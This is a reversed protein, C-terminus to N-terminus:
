VVALFQPIAKELRSAADLATYQRLSKYLSRAAAQALVHEAGIASLAVIQSGENVSRLHYVLVRAVNHYLLTAM